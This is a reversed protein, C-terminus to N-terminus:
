AYTDILQSRAGDAALTQTRAYEAAGVSLARYSRPALIEAAAAPADVEAVLAQPPSPDDDGSDTLFQARGADAALTSPSYDRQVFVMTVRQLQSGTESSPSDAREAIRRPPIPEGALILTQKDSTVRVAFASM